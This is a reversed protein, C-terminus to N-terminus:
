QLGRYQPSAPMPCAGYCERWNSGATAGCKRCRVVNLQGRLDVFNEIGGIVQEIETANMGLRALYARYVLSSILGDIYQQRYAAAMEDREASTQPEFTM